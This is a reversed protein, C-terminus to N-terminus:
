QKLFRDRQIGNVSNWQLIYSGSKLNSTNLKIISEGSHDASYWVYGNVDYIIIFNISKDFAGILQIQDDAPNPFLKFALDEKKKVGTIRNNLLSSIDIQGVGDSLTGLFLSGASDTASIRGGVNGGSTILVQLSNIQDSPLGGFEKTFHQWESGDYVSVGLALQPLYSIWINGLGDRVMNSVSGNLLGNQSDFKIWTGNDYVSIGRSDTAIWIKGTADELIKTVLSQNIEAFHTMQGSANIQTIEKLNDAYGVWTNGKSDGYLEQIFVSKLGDQVKLVSWNSGDFKNLGLKDQEWHVGGVWINNSADETITKVNAMNIADYVVDQGQPVQGPSYLNSLYSKWTIGGDSTASIAGAGGLWISGNRTVYAATTNQLWISSSKPLTQYTWTWNKGDYKSMGNTATPFYLNGLDDKIIEFVDNAPLGDFTNYVTPNSAFVSNIDPSKVLGWRSAVWVSQQDDVKIDSIPYGFGWNPGFFDLKASKWGETEQYQYISGNHTAWLNELNDFYLKTDNQFFEPNDIISFNSGDFVNIGGNVAAYVKGNQFAVDYVENRSLGNQQNYSVLQDSSTYHVLGRSLGIWPRDQEDLVISIFPPIVDVLPVNVEVSMTSLNLKILMRKNSTSVIAWFINDSGVAAVDIFEGLEPIVIPTGLGDKGAYYKFSNSKYLWFGRQVFLIKDGNPLKQISRIKNSDRGGNKLESRWTGNSPNYISLGNDTGIWLENENEVHISRVHSDILGNSGTNETTFTFAKDLERIIVTFSDSIEAGDSDTATVKIVSQGTSGENITIVTGALAANAISSTSSSVSYSLSDGDSSFFTKSIDVQISNFGQQLVFGVLPSVLVPPENVIEITLTDKAFSNVSSAKIIFSYTDSKIGYPKIKASFSISDSLVTIWTPLPGITDNSYLFAEYSLAKGSKAYFSSDPLQFVLSDSKLIDIDPYPINMIVTDITTTDRLAFADNIPKAVIRTFSMAVLFTILIFTRM